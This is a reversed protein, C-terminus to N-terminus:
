EGPAVAEATAADNLLGMALTLLRDRHKEYIRRL